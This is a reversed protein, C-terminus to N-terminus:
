LAFAGLVFAVVAILAVIPWSAGREDCSPLPQVIPLLPLPAPAPPSCGHKYSCRGGCTPEGWYPPMNEEAFREIGWGKHQQRQQHKLSIMQWFAAQNISDFDSGDPNMM